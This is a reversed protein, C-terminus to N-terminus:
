PAVAAAATALLIFGLARRWGPGWCALNDYALTGVLGWICFTATAACVKTPSCRGWAEAAGSGLFKALRACLERLEACARSAWIWARAALLRGRLQVERAPSDAPIYREALM